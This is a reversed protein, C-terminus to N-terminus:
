QLHPEYFFDSSWQSSTTIIKTPSVDSSDYALTIRGFFRLSNKQWCKYYLANAAKKM